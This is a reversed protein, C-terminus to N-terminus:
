RIAYKPLSAVASMSPPPRPTLSMKANRAAYKAPHEHDSCPLSREADDPTASRPPRKRGPRYRTARRVTRVPVTSGRHASLRSTRPEPRGVPRISVWVSPSRPRRPPTPAVSWVGDSFRVRARQTNARDDTRGESNWLASASTALAQGSTPGQEHGRPPTTPSAPRPTDARPLARLRDAGRSERTRAAAPPPHATLGPPDRPRARPPASGPAPTRPM